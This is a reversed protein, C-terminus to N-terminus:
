GSFPIRTKLQKARERALPIKPLDPHELVLQYTSSGLPEIKRIRNIQVIYGRHSRFFLQPDLEQELVSLTKDIPFRNENSVAWVFEDKMEFYVIDSLDVVTYSDRHRIAIRELHESDVDIPHSSASHIREVSQQLRELRVPKLLYDLIRAEFARLAGQDHASVIVVQLEPHKAILAEALSIGDLGPMKLDVFAVNPHKSEVIHQASAADSAEGVLEINECQELLFSLESRAHPEDDVVIARLNM